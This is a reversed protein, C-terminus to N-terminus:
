PPPMVRSTLFGVTLLLEHPTCFHVRAAPSVREASARNPAAAVIEDLRMRDRQTLKGASLHLLRAKVDDYLRQTGIRAYKETAQAMLLAPDFNLVLGKDSRRLRGDILPLLRRLSLGAFETTGALMGAAAEISDFAPAGAADRVADDVQLEWPFGLDAIVLRTVTVDPMRALALALLAGWGKAVVFVRTLALSRVFALLAMLYTHPNYDAASLYASEGRGPLDPCVVRLGNAALVPALATFDKANGTFDHLCLVTRRAKSPETVTYSLESYGSALQLVISKRERRLGSAESM